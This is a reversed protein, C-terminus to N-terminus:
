ESEPANTDEADLCELVLKLPLSPLHQTILEGLPRAGVSLVARSGPEICRLEIFDSGELQSMAINGDSPDLAIDLDVESASARDPVLRLRRTENPTMLVSKSVNIAQGKEELHLDLHCRSLEISLVLPEGYESPHNGFIQVEFPGRGRDCSAQWRFRSGDIEGVEGSSSLRTEDDALLELELWQGEDIAFQTQGSATQVLSPCNLPIDIGERAILGSQDKLEISSPRRLQACRPQAEIIGNFNSYALEPDSDLELHFAVPGRLVIGSEDLDGDFDVVDLEWRANQDTEIPSAGLWELRRIVPACPRDDVIVRVSTRDNTDPSLLEVQCSRASEAGLKSGPGGLGEICGPHLALELEWEGASLQRLSPAKFAKLVRSDACSLMPEALVRSSAERFSFIHVIARAFEADHAAIYERLRVQRSSLELAPRKDLESRALVWVVDLPEARRSKELLNLKLTWHQPDDSALDAINLAFRYVREGPSADVPAEILELSAINRASFRSSLLWSQGARMVSERDGSIQQLMIVADNPTSLELREDVVGLLPDFWVRLEAVYTSSAAIECLRADSPGVCPVEEAAQLDQLTFSLLKLPRLRGAQLALKSEIPDAVGDSVRLTARFVGDSPWDILGLQFSGDLSEYREGQETILSFLLPDNDQDFAFAKLSLQAGAPVTLATNEAGLPLLAVENDASLQVLAIQPPSNPRSVVIRIRRSDESLPPGPSYCRVSLEYSTGQRSGDVFDPQWFLEKPCDKADLREACPRLREVVQALTCRHSSCSLEDLSVSARPNRGGECLPFRLEEGVAVRFEVVPAGGGAFQVPAGGLLRNTAAIGMLMCFLLLLGPWLLGWGPRSSRQLPECASVPVTIRAEKQFPADDVAPHFSLACDFDTLARAAGRLGQGYEAQTPISDITDFLRFILLEDGFVDDSQLEIVFKIAAGPASLRLANDLLRELATVLVAAPINALQASEVRLETQIRARAGGRGVLSSAADLALKSVRGPKIVPRCANALTLVRRHIEATSPLALRHIRDPSLAAEREGAVFARILRRLRMLVRHTHRFDTDGWPPAVQAGSLRRVESFADNWRTWLREQPSARAGCLRLLEARMTDWSSPSTLTGTSPESLEELSQALSVLGLLRHKLVDHALTALIRGIALLRRADEPRQSRRKRAIWNALPLASAPYLRWVLLVAAAPIVLALTVFSLYYSGHAGLADYLAFLASV